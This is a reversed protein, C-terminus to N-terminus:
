KAEDLAKTVKEKNVKSWRYTILSDIVKQSDTPITKLMSKIQGENVWQLSEDKASGWKYNNKNFNNGGAINGDDDDEAVIGLMALLSYRKYYTIFSGVEQATANDNLNLSKTASLSQGSESHILLTTISDDINLLHTYALNCDKLTPQIKDITHALTAYKFSYSGGAKTKVQVESNLDIAPKESQFKVLAKAIEGINEM